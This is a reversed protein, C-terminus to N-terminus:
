GVVKSQCALSHGAVNELHELEEYYVHVCNLDEYYCLERLDRFYTETMKRYAQYDVLNVSVGLDRKQEASMGHALNVGRFAQPNTRASELNKWSYYQELVLKRELIVILLSSRDHHHHKLYYYIFPYHRYFETRQLKLFKGGSELRNAFQQYTPIAIDGFLELVMDGRCNNLKDVFLTSGSRFDSLTVITQYPLIERTNLNRESQRRWYAEEGGESLGRALCTFLLLVFLVRFM